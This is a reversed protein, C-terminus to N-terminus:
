RTETKAPHRELLALIRATVDEPSRGDTDVVWQAEGYARERRALLDAAARVPDEVELLPRKPGDNMARRVAEGPSVHLWISVTGGPIGALRGEVSAWGGGSGLVVDDRGLLETGVKEELGRFHAEGRLEFIESISLGEAAEIREDFDEFRWGLAEALMRGVTSKGSGMLGVLLIRRVGPDPSM